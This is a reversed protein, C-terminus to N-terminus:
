RWHEGIWAAPKAHKYFKKYWPAKWTGAQAEDPDPRGTFAVIRAEETLAPERFWNNPFNPVLDHKFSVCWESPWFRQNPIYKSIYQQEIRHEKLVQMPNADFIEFIGQYKGAPFRYASTNGIGQGKQTWNEIVCYEGPAFAFLDDLSGAVVLDIDLFLVDGELDALPYQWCSLKRWPTWQYSAPLNIRPLPQVEIGQALQSGDDTFCVFRLPGTINRLVARYLRNVYDPGYRTGWKMCIITKQM